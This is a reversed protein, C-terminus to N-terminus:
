VVLMISLECHRTTLVVRLLTPLSSHGYGGGGGRTAVADACPALSQTYESWTPLIKFTSTAVLDLNRLRAVEIRLSTGSAGASSARCGHRSSPAHRLVHNLPMSAAPMNETKFQFRVKRTIKM